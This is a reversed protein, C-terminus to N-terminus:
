SLTFKQNHIPNILFNNLLPDGRILSFHPSRSPFAETTGNETPWSLSFSDFSASIGTKRRAGGKKGRREKEKTAVFTTLHYHQVGVGEGIGPSM